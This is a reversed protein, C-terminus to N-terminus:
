DRTILQNLSLTIDLRVWWLAATDQM